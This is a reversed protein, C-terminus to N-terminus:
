EYAKNILFLDALAIYVASELVVGCRLAICADHRGKIQLNDMKHEKFNYTEQEKSISPTPKVFVNLHLDNGNTIGGNIGGNNNTKTKGDENIFLDNFRSGTLNIGEFGIGFEVGKVAPISYLLAAIRSEVSDFFPEGIFKPVNTADISIIGGISDNKRIIDDIYEDFKNPDKETGIQIVRSVVKTDILKSAFYGAAVFPLTLRGSFHGGGRYDNFGKYKQYAVYDAHGPRPIDILGSYDKSITNENKFSILIPSGTTFGNFVGSSIIPIDSEKRPTTGKKGSKRRELMKILEDIDVKIGPKMGDICVGIEEGHSEGFITIRFLSGFSNM